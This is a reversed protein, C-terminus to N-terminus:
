QIPETLDYGLLSVSIGFNQCFGVVDNFIQTGKFNEIKNEESVFVFRELRPSNYKNYILVKFVDKYFEHSINNGSYKIEYATKSPFHIIDIRSPSKTNKIIPFEFEYNKNAIQLSDKINILLSQSKKTEDSVNSTKSRNINNRIEKLIVDDINTSINLEPFREATQQMVREHSLIRNASLDNLGETIAKKEDASLVEESEVVSIFDLSKVYNLLSIAQANNSDFTLIVQM